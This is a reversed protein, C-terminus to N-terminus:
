WLTNAPNPYGFKEKLLAYYENPDGNQEYRWPYKYPDDGTHQVLCDPHLQDFRSREEESTQAHADVLVELGLEDLPSLDSAKTYAINLRKLNECGALPSLDTVYGCYALELFELDPCNEFPSLDSVMSGSLIVARLKPMGAVFDCQKLYENHGFDLFEADECYILNTSNYDYLGYVHRIVTRDTLCGGEGFWVRWVVKTTDRFEERLAALEENTFHCNDLVLRKCGRMVTLATRLTDLSGEKNGIYQNAYSVEEDTTSVQKGFLEFSVHLLAQPVFSQLRAAQELSYATTSDATMLEIRELKPLLSLMDASSLVAEPDLGSLDLQTTDSECLIGLFDLGCDIQLNPNEQKLTEIEEMSLTTQKLYLSQLKPLYRLNQRLIEYDFDGPNLELAAADPEVATSGLRVLYRVRVQPNRAAYAEIADYCESGTFDAELLDPYNQELELLSQETVVQAIREVKPETTTETRQPANRGCGCLLLAALAALIAKSVLKM